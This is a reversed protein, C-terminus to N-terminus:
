HDKGLGMAESLRITDYEYITQGEVEGEDEYLLPNNTVNDLPLEKCILEKELTRTDPSLEDVLYKGELEDKLYLKAGENTLLTVKYGLSSPLNDVVRRGISSNGWGNWKGYTNVIIHGRGGFWRNWVNSNSMGVYFTNSNKEDRVIYLKYNGDDYKGEYFDKMTITTKKMAREQRCEWCVLRLNDPSDTGGNECRIIQDTYLYTLGPFEEKREPTKGCIACSQKEM